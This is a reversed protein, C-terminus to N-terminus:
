IKNLFACLRFLDQWLEDSETSAGKCKVRQSVTVKQESATTVLQQHVKSAQVYEATSVCSTFHGLAIGVEKWRRDQAIPSNLRLASSLLRIATQASWKSMQEIKATQQSRDPVFSAPSRKSFSDCSNKFLEHIQSYPHYRCKFCQMFYQYIKLCVYVTWKIQCLIDSIAASVCVVVSVRKTKM